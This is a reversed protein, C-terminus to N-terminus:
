ETKEGSLQKNEWEKLTQGSNKEIWRARGSVNRGVVIKAAKSASRFAYNETFQFKEGDDTKLICKKKLFKLEEADSGFDEGQWEGSVQSGALVIFDAGEIVMEANFDKGKLIFTPNESGTSDPDALEKEEQKTPRTNNVFVKVQLASLVMLLKDLFEDMNATHHESLNPESPNNRNDLSVNGIQAREILRAELYKVHAKNLNNTITTVLIAKEWWDKERIHHVLRANIEDAEGIYVTEEGEKEGLLIYVGTHKAEDRGLAKKIQESASSTMLVHGTWNFLEATIIGNPDGDVFYLELSKGSTSKKM